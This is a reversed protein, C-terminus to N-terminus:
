KFTKKNIRNLIADIMGNIDKSLKMKYISVLFIISCLTSKLLISSIPFELIDWFYFGLFCSLTIIFAQISKFSFPSLNFRVKVFILKITNYIFITICSALAAGNLGLIPILIINSVVTIIAVLLGFVLIMRYYDSYFLISNNNGLVSNFLKAIGIIFVVFLGESYNNPLLVYLAKINVLILVLILGSIILLTISSKKYLGDLALYNKANLYEATLPNVIQQMARQPVDIVTAIFIAVSYYAINKIAIYQNIMVKDLELIILAVSGALIILASYKVISIINPLRKIKLIPKQLSFAYFAMIILRVFYVITISYIFEEITIYKFYHAFLLMMIAVRHFVEKIFNGFVSQLQVKSWAYFVEFYAFAIATVYILWIYDKTIPNEKSIWEGIQNHAFHTFAALPIILFLPLLLMTSLFNQQELGTKFSSYFKVITNQVGFAMLPMLINATSLIYGVLGFYEETLFNTYLFLINIAGLGFGIYTILTNKISQNLVIGM